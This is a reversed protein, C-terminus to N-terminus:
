FQQAIAMQNKLRMDMIILKIWESCLESIKEWEQGASHETKKQLQEIKQKLEPGSDQQVLYLYIDLADKYYGQQEYLKGLELTRINKKM